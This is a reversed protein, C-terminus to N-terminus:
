DRQYGRDQSVRNLKPKILSSIFIAASIGLRGRYGTIKAPEIVAVAREFQVYFEKRRRKRQLMKTTIGSVVRGWNKVCSGDEGWCFNISRIFKRGSWNREGGEREREGAFKKM